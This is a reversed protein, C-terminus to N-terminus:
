VPLVQVNNLTKFREILDKDDSTRKVSYNRWGHLLNGDGVEVKFLM